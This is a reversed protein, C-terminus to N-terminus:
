ITPAANKAITPDTLLSTSSFALRSAFKVRLKLLHSSISGIAGELMDPFHDEWFGGCKESNISSELCHNPIVDTDNTMTTDQIIATAEQPTINLADWHRAKISVLDM